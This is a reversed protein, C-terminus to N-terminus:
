ICIPPNLTLFISGFKVIEKPFKLYIINSSFTPKCVTDYEVNYFDARIFLYMCRGHYKKEGTKSM